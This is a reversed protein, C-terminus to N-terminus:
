PRSSSALSAGAVVGVAVVAGLVLGTRISFKRVRKQKGPAIAAGSPTSAPIGDGRTEPAAATGLPTAIQPPSGSPAQITLTHPSAQQAPAPAQPTQGEAIPNVGPKSTQQDVTSAATAAQQPTLASAGAPLLLLTAILCMSLSFKITCQWVM